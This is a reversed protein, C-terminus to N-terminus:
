RHPPACNKGISHAYQFVADASAHYKLIRMKRLEKGWGDKYRDKGFARAAPLTLEHYLKPYESLYVEKHHENIFFPEKREPTIKMSDITNGEENQTVVIRSTFYKGALKQYNNWNEAISSYYEIVQGDLLRYRDSFRTGYQILFRMAMHKVLRAAETIGAKEEVISSHNGPMLYTYYNCGAPVMNKPVIIPAFARRSDHWAIIVCCNKVNGTLEIHKWMESNGVGSSGPVPDIAFINVPISKLQADQSMINAIKFCTVAGRSWGAMNVIPPLPKRGRAAETEAKIHSTIAEIGAAVNAEIGSGFIMGGLTRAGGPNSKGVGTSFPVMNGSGVGDNIHHPSTTVKNLHAIVDPSNRHYATGCNFITLAM